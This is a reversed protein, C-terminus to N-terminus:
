SRHAWLTSDVTYWFWKDEMAQPVHGRRLAAMEADSFSRHLTFTDHREPMPETKWDSRRAACKKNQDETM